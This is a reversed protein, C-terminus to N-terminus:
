TSIPRVSGIAHAFGAQSACNVVFRCDADTEALERNLQDTLLDGWFAYLSKGKSTNVKNSMELRYPRINDLPRLMGYLGDLIRLHQQCFAVEHQDLSILALAKYAPGDFAFGAPKCAQQSWDKYRSFNLSALSNSTALTSQLEAKSLTQLHTVLELTHKTFLPESPKCPLESTSEDLTKAPSLLVIM